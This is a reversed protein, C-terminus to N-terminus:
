REAFRYRWLMVTKRNILLENVIAGDPKGAAAELVIAQSLPQLDAGHVKNTGAM